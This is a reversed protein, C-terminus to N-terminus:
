VYAVIRKKDMAIKIAQEEDLYKAKAEKEANKKLKELKEVESQCTIKLKYM